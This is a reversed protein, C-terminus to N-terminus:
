IFVPKSFLIRWLQTQDIQPRKVTHINLAYQLADNLLRYLSISNGAM